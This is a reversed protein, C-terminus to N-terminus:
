KNSITLYITFQFFLFFIISSTRPLTRL